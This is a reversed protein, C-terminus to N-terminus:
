HSSVKPPKNEDKANKLYAHVKSARGMNILDVPRAGGFNLNEKDLWLICKDEDQFFDYLISVIEYITKMYRRRMAKDPIYDPSVRPGKM